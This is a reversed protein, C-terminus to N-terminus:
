LNDSQQYYITHKKKNKQKKQSDLLNYTTHLTEYPKKQHIITEYPKKKMHNILRTTTRKTKM